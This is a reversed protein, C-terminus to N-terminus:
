ICVIDYDSFQIASYKLDPSFKADIIPKDSSYYRRNAEPDDLLVVGFGSSTKFVVRNLRDDYSLFSENENIRLPLPVIEVSM